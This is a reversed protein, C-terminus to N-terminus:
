DHQPNINRGELRANVVYLQSGRGFIQLEIGLLLEVNLPKFIDVYLRPKVTMSIANQDRQDGAAYRRERAVSGKLRVLLREFPLIADEKPGLTHHSGIAFVEVFYARQMRRVPLDVDGIQHAVRQQKGDRLAFDRRAGILLFDLCLEPRRLRILALSLIDVRTPLGEAFEPLTFILGTVLETKM